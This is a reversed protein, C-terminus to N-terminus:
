RRTRVTAGNEAGGTHDIVSGPPKRMARRQAVSGNRTAFTHTFEAGLFFIQASYYVWALFVVLSGAAGYASGVSARGLYFGILFKGLSFLLATVAAGIWVDGWDVPQDPVVKYLLAFLVTFVVFSLVAIVAESELPTIPLQTSLFKGMAAAAASLLLAVLALFGVALVLGFAYFRSLVLGRFGQDPANVGWVYNLSDRLEVFVASAGFLMVLIGAVGAAIGAGPARASLLVAEIAKAGEVGVLDRLQWLIQGQAAARGFVAGAVSVAIVLLPAMSLVTYYALSAGLRPANIDMWRKFSERLLALIGHKQVTRPPEGREPIAPLSPM